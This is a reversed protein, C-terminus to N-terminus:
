AARHSGCAGRRRDARPRRAARRAVAAGSQDDARARDGADAARRRLAPQRFQAPARRPPSVSRVSGALGLARARAAVTLNEEVTLTSFIEREQAVWGIGAHARRHPPRATIDEGRWLIRGRGIQTYGMITLLLTSKGVGNRGLVALGGREPVEFSVGDLVVASGYGARVDSLSLLPETMFAARWATKCPATMVRRASISRACARIPPSRPRRAKSWFAAASWSSSAPPSAFCWIWTTSSSCCPSTARCAPSPPLCIRAKRARCARRRSTSCCCKRGADGAGARNRAPTAPRLATRPDRRHCVPALTLAPLFTTPRTSKTASLRHAAAVLHARRPAARVGRADGIRARHSASVAFQDPLHSRARAAGATGAAARHHGRRRSLHPRRGPPLMGTM